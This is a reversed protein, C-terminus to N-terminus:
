SCLNIDREVHANHPFSGPLATSVTWCMRSAAAPLETAADSRFATETRGNLRTGGFHKLAEYNNMSAHPYSAQHKEPNQAEPKPNEPTRALQTAFKLGDHVDEDGVHAAAVHDHAEDVMSVDHMGEDHLVHIAVRLCSRSYTMFMKM